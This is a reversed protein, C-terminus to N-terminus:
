YDMSSVYKVSNRILYIICCQIVVNKFIFKEGEELGSVDDMSIFLTDEVGRCKIEDFIQMWYYKGESESIWLGLLLDM